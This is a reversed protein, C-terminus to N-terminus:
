DELLRNIRKDQLIEITNKATNGEVLSEIVKKMDLCLQKLEEIDEGYKTIGLSGSNTM